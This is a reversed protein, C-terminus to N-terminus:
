WDDLLRKLRADVEDPSLPVRDGEGSAADHGAGPDRTRGDARAEFGALCAPCVTYSDEGETSRECVRCPFRSGTM